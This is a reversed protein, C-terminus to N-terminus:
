ERNQTYGIGLAKLMEQVREPAVNTIAKHLQEKQDFIPDPPKAEINLFVM